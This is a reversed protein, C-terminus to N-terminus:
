FWTIYVYACVLTGPLCVLAQPDDARLEVLAPRAAVADAALGEAALAEEALFRQDARVALVQIEGM